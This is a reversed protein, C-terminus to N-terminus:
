GFAIMPALVAVGLAPFLLGFFLVRAWERTSAKTLLAAAPVAVVAFPVLLVLVLPLGAATRDLWGTEYGVLAVFIPGLLGMLFAVARLVTRRWTATALETPM